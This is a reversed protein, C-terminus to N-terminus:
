KKNLGTLIPQTRFYAQPRAAARLPASEHSGCVAAPFTLLRLRTEDDQAAFVPALIKPQAPQVATTGTRSPKPPMRPLTKCSRNGARSNERFAEMRRATLGSEVVKLLTGGAADKLEFTVLARDEAHRHIATMGSAPVSRCSRYKPSTVTFHDVKARLDTRGTTAAPLLALYHGLLM